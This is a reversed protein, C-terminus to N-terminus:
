LLGILVLFTFIVIPALPIIAGILLSISKTKNKRREILSVCLFILFQLVFFLLSYFLGFGHQNLVSFSSLSILFVIMLSVSVIKKM